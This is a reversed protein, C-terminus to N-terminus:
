AEINLLGHDFWVDEHEGALLVRWGPALALYKIIEPCAKKLHSVYLPQFFDPDKSMNEGGWIYWGCSGEEAPHRRANLPLKGITELAIGVKSNLEAEVYSSGFTLCIEIQQKKTPDV